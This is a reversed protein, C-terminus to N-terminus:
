QQMSGMMISERRMQQDYMTKGDVMTYGHMGNAKPAAFANAAMMTKDDMMMSGHMGGAKPAAAFGNAVMVWNGVRNNTAMPNVNQEEEQHYFYQNSTYKDDVKPPVSNYIPIDGMFEPYEVMFASDISWYNINYFRRMIEPSFQLLRTNTDEYYTDNLSFPWLFSTSASFCQLFTESSYYKDQNFM